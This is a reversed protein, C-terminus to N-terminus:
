VTDKWTSQCVTALRDVVWVDRGYGSVPFYQDLQLRYSIRGLRHVPHGGFTHWSGLTGAADDAPHFIRSYCSRSWLSERNRKWFFYVLPGPRYPMGLLVSTFTSSIGRYHRWFQRCSDVSGHGPVVFGTECIYIAILSAMSSYYTVISEGQQLVLVQIGLTVYRLARAKECHSDVVSGATNPVYAPAAVAVTLLGAKVAFLFEPKSFFALGRDIYRLGNLIPSDFPMTDPDRRKAQGLLPESADHLAHDKTHCLILMIIESTAQRCRVQTLIMASMGPKM